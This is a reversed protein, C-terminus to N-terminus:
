LNITEAIVEKLVAFKIPKELIRANLGKFDADVSFGTLIVSPIYPFNEQLWRVVDSGKQSSELSQDTIVIDIDNSHRSIHQMAEAVNDFAEVSANESQLLMAYTDLVDPEDDILVVTKGAIVSPNIQQDATTTEEIVGCVPMWLEFTSGVGVESSVTLGCENNVAFASVVSLGLGTGDQKERSTHFPDFIKILLDKEIGCGNDKVAVRLYRKAEKPQCFVFDPSHTVAKHLSTSLRIEGEGTLAKSANVILNMVADSFIREETKITTGTNLDIRLHSSPPLVERYFQSEQSLLKDINVSTRESTGPRVLTLLRDTVKKARGVAVDIKEGILTKQEVSTTMQLIQANGGIIALINNLDHCIGASLQGALAVKQANALKTAQEVKDTIDHQIGVYHTIEDGNYIPSIILNNWYTKGSKHYNLIEVNIDEGANLHQRIQSITEKSTHKGHLFKSLPMGEIEQLAYGSLAEFARNCWTVRRSADTMTIGAGSIDAVKALLRYRDAMQVFDTVDQFIGFISLLEGREDRRIQATSKVHRIDGDPRVIRLQFEWGIGSEMAKNVHGQVREVDDPHYFDIASELSPSYNHKSVGHIRYIEDSWFVSQSKIDVNWHGLSAMAEAQQLLGRQKEDKEELKVREDIPRASAFIEADDNITSSWEIWTYEGSKKLYRNKFGEVSNGHHILESFAANTADVDEPHVLSIFPVSLLHDTDWGLCESWYPNLYTFYGSDNAKCILLKLADLIEIETKM